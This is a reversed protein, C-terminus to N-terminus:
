RAETESDHSSPLPDLYSAPQYRVAKGVEHGRTGRGFAVATRVGEVDEDPATVYVDDGLSFPESDSQALVYIM